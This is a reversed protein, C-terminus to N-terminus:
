IFHYHPCSVRVGGEKFTCWSRRVPHPGICTKYTNIKLPELWWYIMLTFWSKQFVVSYIRWQVNSYGQLLRFALCYITTVSSAVICILLPTDNQNMTSRWNYICRVSTLNQPPLVVLYIPLYIRPIPYQNLRSSKKVTMKFDGFIRITKDTKMVPVIPVTWDSFQIPELIIQCILTKLQSKVQSRISYSVPCAKYLLKTEYYKWCNQKFVRSLKWTM